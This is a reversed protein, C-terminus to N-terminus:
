AADSNDIVIKLSPSISKYRNIYSEVEVRRQLFWNILHDDSASDLVVSLIDLDLIDVVQFEEDVSYLVIHLTFDARFKRNVDIFSLLMQDTVTISKQVKAKPASDKKLIHNYASRDWSPAEVYEDSEGYVDAFNATIIVDDIVIPHNPTKLAAMLWRPIKDENKYATTLFLEAAILLSSSHHYM